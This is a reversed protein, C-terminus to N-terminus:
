RSNRSSKSKAVMIRPRMDGFAVAASVPSRRTWSADLAKLGDAYVIKAHKLDLNLTEAAVRGHTQADALQNVHGQAISLGIEDHEGHSNKLHTGHLTKEHVLVQGDDRVLGYFIICCDASRARM